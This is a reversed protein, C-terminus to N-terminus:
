DSMEESIQWLRQARDPDVAYDAADTGCATPDEGIAQQINEFYRGGVGNLEPATAVYVSTAAGQQLTKFTYKGSSRLANQATPDYHRSLRSDAIAGPHLAYTFIGDDAWRRHSGSRVARERDEVARVGLGPGVASSRLRHRRVASALELPSALQNCRGPCGSGRAASAATRPGGLFARSPQHRVADRSRAPSLLLEPVAMVGANNILLHLPGTFEAALREVSNRDMLDLHAVHVGPNGTTSRIDQATREAATLDRAAITVDARAAALARATEVGIGSAAGTVLARQGHLDHGQVVEMATTDFDYTSAIRATMSDAKTSQGLPHDASNPSSRPRPTSIARRAAWYKVKLELYTHRIQLASLEATLKDAHAQFLARQRAAGADGQSAQRLYVRMDGISLGVARLNALTELQAVGDLSYRRHGSSPDRSVAAVLGIREWYRLTSERLGSRAAAEAISLGM